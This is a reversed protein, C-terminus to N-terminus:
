WSRSSNPPLILQFRSRSRRLQPLENKTSFKIPRWFLRSSQFKARPMGDSLRTRFSM